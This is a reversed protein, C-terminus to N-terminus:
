NFFLLISPFTLGFAYFMLNFFSLTNFKQNGQLIGELSSYFITIGIGALIHILLPKQIQKILSYFNALYLFFSLISIVVLVSIITYKIGQYSIEKSKSPYNNISVVISKGIGFNLIISIIIIFQFMIYNGYNEAGAIKLHIPISIISLIISFFGPLSLISSFFLLKSIKFKM